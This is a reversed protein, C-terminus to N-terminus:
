QELEKITQKFQDIETEAAQTTVTVKMKNEKKEKVSTELERTLAVM